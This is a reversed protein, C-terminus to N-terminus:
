LAGDIWPPSQTDYGSVGHLLKQRFAPIRLLLPVAVNRIAIAVPNKMTILSTLQHTQKLVTKVAPMRLGAYERERGESILWALWCADEIGLNMGRAGAPSHIHAADGALFVNGRAMVAVHRFHIRFDSAWVREAIAAPHQIRSEFDPLTSIYRLVDRTVPLRGIMGPDFLTIEAFGPDIPVAYRFDALYFSRELAQGPFGIGVAKRVASHAGDAAIVIDFDATEVSGDAKRLTVRPKSLDGSVTEVATQWEPAVEYDSLKGLLLRETHGQALAHIASYPGPVKTTDIDALLRGKSVIRFHAIQQAEQLITDSVRSPSLLALTRANIGLARSETLPVPGADSDVIRPLFGRRALELAATLGTAGAGAILISRHGSAM